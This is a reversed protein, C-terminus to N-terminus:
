LWKFINYKCAGRTMCVGTSYNTVFISVGESLQKALSTIQIQEIPPIPFGETYKPFICRFM